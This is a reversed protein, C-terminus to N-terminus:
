TKQRVSEPRGAAPLKGVGNAQPAPPIALAPAPRRRAALAAIRLLGLTLVDLLVRSVFQIPVSAFLRSESVRNVTVFFVPTLFVGFLTVGLMGSFVATGLTRRMEAGAGNALM